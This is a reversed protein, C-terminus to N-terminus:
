FGYTFSATVGDDELTPADDRSLRRVRYGLRVAGGSVRYAVGAEAALEGFREGQLLDVDLELRVTDALTHFLGARALGLAETEATEVGDAGDVDGGAEGDLDLEIRRAGLGLEVGAGSTATDLLRYGAGAIGLLGREIGLPRDARLEAEGFLYLAEDLWYRPLYGVRYGSGDDYRLWDAYLSQSFPRADNRLTLRLRSANGGDRVVTGGEVGGSWDAAVPFSALALSVVVVFPPLFRM